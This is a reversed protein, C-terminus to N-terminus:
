RRQELEPFIQTTMGELHTVDNQQTIRWASGDDRMMSTVSMNSFEMALADVNPLLVGLLARIATTHTVIGITEGPQAVIDDFAAKMRQAVDKRSEGGTVQYEDPSNRLQQFEVPYWAQVEDQTLGQWIGIHRERLRADPIAQLGLATALITATDLARRLDSAYLATIGTNRVFKALREAQIRGHANLPVAVHGQWRGDKNWQTEGPRIFIVRKM